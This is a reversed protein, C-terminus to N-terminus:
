RLIKTEYLKIDHISLYVLTVSTELDLTCLIQILLIEFKDKYIISVSLVTDYIM